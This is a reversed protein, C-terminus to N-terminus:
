SLFDNVGRPETTTQLWTAWIECHEPQWLFLVLTNQQLSRPLNVLQKDFIHQNQGVSDWKRCLPAYAKFHVHAVMPDSIRCRRVLWTDDNNMWWGMEMRRIHSQNIKNWSGCWINMVCICIYIYVYIYYIIFYHFRQNWSGCWINIIHPKLINIYMVNIYWMFEDKGNLGGSARKAEQGRQRERSERSERGLAAASRRM